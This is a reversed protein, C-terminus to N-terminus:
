LPPTILQVRFPAVLVILRGLSITLVISVAAIGGSVLLRVADVSGASVPFPAAAGILGDLAGITGLRVLVSSVLGAVVAVLPWVMARTAGLRVLAFALVAYGPLVLLLLIPRPDSLVLLVLSAGTCVLGVLRASIGLLRDRQKLIRDM